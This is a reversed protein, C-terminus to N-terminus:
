AVDLESDYGYSNPRYSAKIMTSSDHGNAEVHCLDVFPCYECNFKSASRTIGEKRGVKSKCKLDVIQKAAETHNEIFTNRLTSTSSIEQQKFSDKADDRYRVMNLFGKRSRFGMERLAWVYNPVQPNMKISNEPWFNYCFKHDWPIREGRNPGSPVELTLDIRGAFEIETTDPLPATVVNEVGVIRYENLLWKHEEFYDKLLIGLQSIMLAKQSDGINMEKLSRAMLFSISEQVSDEHSKGSLITKYYIELAEHGIIGRTLAIGLSRPELNYSPHHAYMWRQKCTLFTAVESTSVKFVM